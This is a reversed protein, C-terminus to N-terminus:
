KTWIYVKIHWLLNWGNRVTIITHKGYLTLIDNHFQKIILTM